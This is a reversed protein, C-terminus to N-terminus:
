ATPTPLADVDDGHLQWAEVEITLTGGFLVLASTGKSQVVEGELGALAPMGSVRVLAGPAFDRRVARLAKRRAAETRLMAAREERAVEEAAAQLAAEIAAQRQAERAAEIQRVGGIAADSIFPTLGAHRFISFPPHQNFRNGALAALAAYHRERAFVFTPMIAGAIDRRVQSRGHRVLRAVTETPTWVEFGAEALSRALPLTRGGSTRLICWGDQVPKGM